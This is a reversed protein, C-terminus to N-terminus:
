APEQAEAPAPVAEGAPRDAAAEDEPPAFPDLDFLKAHVYRGLIRLSAITPAALAIGLVGGVSAGVIIGLIVVMPHLNVREGVIRPILYNLDFKTFFLNTGLVILAFVPNSVPLTTSGEVLALALAIILWITHGVSVTFELLGGLIGMLLPQPLGIALSLLTLILTVVIALIVQGRFFDAWVLNIEGLLREIDARYEPPALRKFWAAFRHADATFYFAIFITFIALLLTKSAGFLLRPADSAASRILSGLQSSLDGTIEELPLTVGPLLTVSDASAAQLLAVVRLLEESLAALQEALLPALAFGLPVLMAVLLLYVLAAAWEHSLRTLRSVARALPLILYALIAGLILPVFVIRAVYVLLAFLVFLIVAVVLKLSFSWPPSPLDSAPRSSM